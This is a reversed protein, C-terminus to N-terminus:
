KEIAHLESQQARAGVSVRASGASKEEKKENPEGIQYKNHQTTNHQTHPKKQPM